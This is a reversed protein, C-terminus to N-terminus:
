INKAAFYVNGTGNEEETLIDIEAFYENLLVEFEEASNFNTIYHGWLNSKSYQILGSFIGKKEELCQRINKLLIRIEEMTFCNLTADCIVNTYDNEITPFEKTLDVVMFQIRKNNYVKQAFRVAEETYDCALVSKVNKDCYFHYTNFGDGCGLELVKAEPFKRIQINSLIGRKLWFPDQTKNWKYMLDIQHDFYIPNLYKWRLEFQLKYINKTCWRSIEAGGDVFFLIFRVACERIKKLIEKIKNKLMIRLTNGSTRKTLDECEALKQFSYSVERIREKLNGEQVGCHVGSGDFGCNVVKSSYPYITWLGKKFFYYDWRVAWSDVKGSMQKDLMDSIGEQQMDFKGRLIRDKKFFSYDIVQWDAQNWIDKWTAWGWSNGTKSKYVKDIYNQKGKIPFSFGSVAGVCKDTAYYELGEQMFVVFDDTVYLDDELVIATGFQNIVNSVGDIISNALGKNKEEEQIKVSRFGSRESFEHLYLRVAKVDDEATQNKAGDSFIFLDHLEIEKCANLKELLNRTHELRNYVFVLVPAKM